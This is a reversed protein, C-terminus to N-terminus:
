HVYTICCKIVIESGFHSIIPYVPKEILLHEPLPGQESSHPFCWPHYPNYFPFTCLIQLTPWVNLPIRHELFRLM